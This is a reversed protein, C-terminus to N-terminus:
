EIQIYGKRESKIKNLIITLVGNEFKTKADIETVDKPLIIVRKVYGYLRERVFYSENKNETINEHDCVFELTKSDILKIKISKKEIGPVDISVIVQEDNEKIDITPKSSYSFQSVPFSSIGSTIELGNNYPSYKVASSPYGGFLSDIENLMTSLERRFVM